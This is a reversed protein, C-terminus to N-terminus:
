VVLNVLRGSVYIAKKIQADKIFEAIRADSKAANIVDEESIDAQVTIEARVKGNIQIALTITDEVVLSEDWQPWKSVHVSEEHDLMQWIEETIHPAFPALLQTLTELANRWEDSQTVNNEAKIKYLNNVM